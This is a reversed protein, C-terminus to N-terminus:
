MWACGPPSGRRGAATSRGPVPRASGPQGPGRRALGVPTGGPLGRRAARAALAAQEATVRACGAVVADLDHEPPRPLGDPDPEEEDPDPPEQEDATAECWARWEQGTMPDPIRVPERAPDDDEGPGRPAPKGPMCVGGNPLIIEVKM